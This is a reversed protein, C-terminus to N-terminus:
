YVSVPMIVTEEEGKTYKTTGLTELLKNVNVDTPIGSPHWHNKCGAYDLLVGQCPVGAANVQWGADWNTLACSVGVVGVGQLQSCSGLGVGRLDDPLIYVEFGHQDGLRTLTRVKCGLSCQQCKGGLSTRQAQCFQGDDSVMRRSHKCLCDPVIVIKRPAALFRERYARTLIESGLMGLHYEVRTRTILASDYRWRSAKQVCTIFEDAQTTYIGLWAESETEFEEALLLCRALVAEASQADLNGLYSCWDDLQSAQATLGQARLWTVLKQVLGAAGEDVPKSEFAEAANPGSVLGQVLGRMAKVPKEVVPLPLRDQTEVLHALMWAPAPAMRLAQGGHERLLVGLVLMEFCAEEFSREPARNALFTQFSAAPNALPGAAQALWHDTFAAIQRFYVDSSGHDIRLSYPQGADM